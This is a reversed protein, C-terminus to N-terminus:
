RVGALAGPVAVSLPGSIPIASLGRDAFFDFTAGDPGCGSGHVAVYTRTAARHHVAFLDGGPGCMAPLAVFAMSAMSLSADIANGGDALVRAGALSM